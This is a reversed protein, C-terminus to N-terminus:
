NIITKRTLVDEMTSSTSIKKNLHWSLQGKEPIDIVFVDTNVSKKDDTKLGCIIGEEEKNKGNIAM